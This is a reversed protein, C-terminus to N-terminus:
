NKTNMDNWARIDNFKTLYPLQSRLADEAMKVEYIYFKDVGLHELPLPVWVTGFLEACKYFPLVLSIEYHGNPVPVYQEIEDLLRQYLGTKTNSERSVFYKTLYGNTSQFKVQYLNVQLKM